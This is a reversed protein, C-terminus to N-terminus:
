RLPARFVRLAGPDDGPYLLGPAVEVTLPAGWAEELRRAARQRGVGQVGADLLVCAGPALDDPLKGALLRRLDRKTARAAELAEGEPIAFPLAKHTPPPESPRWAVGSTHARAHDLWQADFASPFYLRECDSLARAVEGPWPSTTLPWPGLTAAQLAALVLLGAALRPRAAWIRDMGVAALAALGATVLAAWRMPHHMRSATPLWRFAADYIPNIVTHAGDHAGYHVGYLDGYLVPYPGVVLAAAALLALWPAAARGRGWVGAAVAPLLTLAPLLWGRLPSLLEAIPIADYLTQEARPWATWEPTGPSPFPTGYPLTALLPEQGMAQLVPLAAPLALAIGLLGAAAAGALFGPLAELRLARGAAFLAWGLGLVLAGQWYLLATLTLGVGALPLGGRRGESIRWLGALSLLAPATIAQPIQGLAATTLTLGAGGAVLGAAARGAPGAGLARAFLQGGAVALAVLVIGQVVVAREGALAQVPWVVLAMDLFNLARSEVPVQWLDRTLFSLVGGLGEAAQWREGLVLWTDLALKRANLSDSRLTPFGPYRQGSWCAAAVPLHALLAAVPALWPLLHAFRPQSVPAGHPRVNV